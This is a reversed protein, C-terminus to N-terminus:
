EPRGPNLPRRGEWVRFAPDEALLRVTGFREQLLRQLALRRQAVLVLTGRSNLLGPTGQIFSSIMGPDEVKGRHFPPNSLIADYPRGEDPPLGDRLLPRGAPVNERAAELAVADIDLLDVELDESQSMAVWGVMGSGCGYDLVRSGAPLVPLVELLLRTGPDVHRHAFIGPYSVWERTLGPYDLQLLSKWAEPSSRLSTEEPGRTARLVRCRGGVGLTEAKSFVEELLGPASEIGEDKAGYLLFQGGPRLVFCAAHLGMLLEERGRPLRLTAVGFPGSPPWATAMRGAYARRNWVTADLGAAQFAAAVEPLREEMILAPSSLDLGPLQRVLLEAAARDRWEPDRRKSL